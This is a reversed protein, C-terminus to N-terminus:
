PIEWKCINKNSSLSLKFIQAICLLQKMRLKIVVQLPFGVKISRNLFVPYPKGNIM